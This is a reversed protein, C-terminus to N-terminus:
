ALWRNGVDQQLKIGELVAPAAAKELKGGVLPIKVKLDGAVDVRTRDGDPIIKTQGTLQVPQGPVTLELRGTRSGDPGAEGWAIEEVVTLTPGTFRAAEPPAPLQRSMRTHNGEVSTEFDSADSARCLEALYGEDTLMAFVRDPTAAFTASSTIQM